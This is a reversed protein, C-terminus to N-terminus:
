TMRGDAVTHIETNRFRSGDNRQGNYTVIVLDDHEIVRELEYDAIHDAAPWCREFSRARALGDDQPSWFRYDDAVVAELMSRDGIKYAEYAQRVTDSPSPMHIRRDTM